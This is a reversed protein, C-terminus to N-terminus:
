RSSPRSVLTVFWLNDVVVELNTPFTEAFTAFHIIGLLNPEVILPLSRILDAISVGCTHPLVTFRAIAHAPFCILLPPTLNILLPTVCRSFRTPLVAM